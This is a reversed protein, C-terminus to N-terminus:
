FGCIFMDKLSGDGLKVERWHHCHFILHVISATSLGHEISLNAIDVQKNSLQLSLESIGPNHAIILLNKINDTVLNIEELIINPTANYLQKMTTIEINSDLKKVLQEATQMARNAYSSLIKDLNIEIEELYNAAEISQNLGYNTLNRYLDLGKKTEADAHRMLLLNKM